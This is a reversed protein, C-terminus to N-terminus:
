KNCGCDGPKKIIKGGSMKKKKMKGGCKAILKPKETMKKGEIVATDPNSKIMLGGKRYSQTVPYYNAANPKAVENKNLITAARNDSHYAGAPRQSKSYSDWNSNATAQDVAQQNYYQGDTTNKIFYAAENPSFRRVNSLDLTGPRGSLLNQLKDHGILLQNGRSDRIVSRRGTPDNFITQYRTAGNKFYSGLEPSFVSAPKPTPPPTTVSGAPQTKDLVGGTPLARTSIFPANFKTM